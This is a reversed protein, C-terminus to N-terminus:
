QADVVFWRGPKHGAPSGPCERQASPDVHRHGQPTNVTPIATGFWGYRNWFNGYSLLANDYRAFEGLM